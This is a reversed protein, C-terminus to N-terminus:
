QLQGEAIGRILDLPLGSTQVVTLIGDSYTVIASQGLGNPLIPEAIAASQGAVTGEHWRAAPIDIGWRPISRLKVLTVGGGLIGADRDAPIIFRAETALIIGDCGSASTSEIQASAPLLGLDLAMEADTVEELPVVTLPGDCSHTSEYRLGPGVEIGAITQVYVPESREQNLYPVHWWSQTTDPTAGPEPTVDPGPPNTQGVGGPPPPAYVEVDPPPGTGDIPPPNETDGEAAASNSSGLQRTVAFAGFSLVGIVVAM